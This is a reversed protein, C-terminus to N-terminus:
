MKKKEHENGHRVMVDSCVGEWMECEVTREWMLVLGDRDIIRSIMGICRGM